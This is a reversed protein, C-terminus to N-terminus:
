SFSKITQQFINKIIDKHQDLQDKTLNFDIKAFGNYDEMKM